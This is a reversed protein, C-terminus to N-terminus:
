ANTLNFDGRLGDYRFLLNALVDRGLLLRVDRHGRIPYDVFRRNAHLDIGPIQICADFEDRPEPFGGLKRTGVWRLRLEKALTRQICSCQAGTDILALVRRQDSKTPGILLEQLPGDDLLTRNAADTM